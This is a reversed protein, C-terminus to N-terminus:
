HMITERAFALVAEADVDTARAQDRREDWATPPYPIAPDRQIAQGAAIDTGTTVLIPGRSLAFSSPTLAYAVASSDHVYCGDLGFRKHYNAYLASAQGILSLAPDAHRAWGDLEDRSLRIKRTVDLGIATVDWPAAFVQDAAEPDGSVNAEAVPTVNGAEGFAGGMLVVRRALAAAEPDHMLLLALNTLRGVAIVTVEGPSARLVDAILQHAPRPDLAPLEAKPLDADGLGNRGHVMAPPPSAARILARGAGRAVPADIKLLASLLLANRTTVEVDANGFGTTIGVLEVDPHRALLLLALADDVGPDTDFLIKQVAM